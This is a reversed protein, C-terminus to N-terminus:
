RYDDLSVDDIQFSPGAFHPPIQSIFDITTPGTGDVILFMQYQKWQPESEPELMKLFVTKGAIRVIAASLGNGGSRAVYWFSFSYVGKELTLSQTVTGAANGQGGVTAGRTGTHADDTVNGNGTFTWEKCVGGAPKCSDDEFDKNRILETAAVNSAALLAAAIVIARRVTTTLLIRQFLTARMM